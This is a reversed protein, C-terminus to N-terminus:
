RRVDTDVERPNTYFVYFFQNFYVPSSFSWDNKDRIEIDIDIQGAAELTGVEGPIKFDDVFDELLCNITINVLYFLKAANNGAFEEITM